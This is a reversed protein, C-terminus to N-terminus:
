PVALMGDGPSGFCAGLVCANSCQADSTCTKRAIERRHCVHLRHPLRARWVHMHARCGDTIPPAPRAPPTPATSTAPAASPVDRAPRVPAHCSRASSSPAATPSASPITPARTSSSPARAAACINDPVTCIASQCDSTTWCPGGIGGGGGHGGAGGGGDPRTTGSSGCGVITVTVLMLVLSGSLSRNMSDERLQIRAVAAAM